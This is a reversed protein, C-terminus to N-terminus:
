HTHFENGVGGKDHQVLRGGAEVGELSAGNTLQEVIEGFLLTLSNDCSDM